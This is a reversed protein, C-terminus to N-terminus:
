ASEIWASFFLTRAPIPPSKKPEAGVDAVGEGDQDQTRHPRAPAREVLRLRLVGDVVQQEHIEREVVLFLLGLALKLLQPFMGVTRSRTVRNLKSVSGCPIALNLSATFPMFRVM